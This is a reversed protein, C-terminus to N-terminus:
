AVEEEATFAALVDAYQEPKLEKGSKVGFAALKELTAERGNAAAYATIAAGVPAYDPTATAQPKTAATSAPAATAASKAAQGTAAATKAPAAAVGAEATPSTPATTAPKAKPAPKDEQVAAPAKALAAILERIAATNDALAQELSM